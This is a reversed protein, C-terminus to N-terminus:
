EGNEAVQSGLNAESDYIYITKYAEYYGLVKEVYKRTEQYPINEVFEDM